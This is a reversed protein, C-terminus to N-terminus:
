IYDKMRSTNQTKRQRNSTSQLATHDLKNLRETRTTASRIMRV